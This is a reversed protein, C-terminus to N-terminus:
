AEAFYAADCRVVAANGSDGLYERQYLKRMLQSPFKGCRSVEKKQFPLQIPFTSALWVIPLLLFQM